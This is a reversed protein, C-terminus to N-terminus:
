IADGISVLLKLFLPSMQVILYGLATNQITSIAQEKQNLMFRLAGWSLMVGAIPYSLTIIVKILPDFADMITKKIKDMDAMVPVADPTQANVLLAQPISIDLLLSGATVAVAVKLGTTILKKNIKREIKKVKYSGTLFENVTGVTEVKNFM